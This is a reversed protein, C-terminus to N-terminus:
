ITVPVLKFIQQYFKPIRSRNVEEYQITTLIANKLSFKTSKIGVDRYALGDPWSFLKQNNGLTGITSAGELKVLNKYTSYKKM